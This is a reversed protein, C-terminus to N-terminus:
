EEEPQIPRKLGPFRERSIPLVAVFSAGVGADSEIRLEGGNQEILLKLVAM